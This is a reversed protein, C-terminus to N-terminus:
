ILSEYLSLYKKLLIHSSFNNKVKEIANFPLDKNQGSLVWEIGHALSQPDYPEALYGNKKHDILDGNGGIHFAVVPLGCSLSELIANSFNEQLSPVVAVDACSYLIQLSIEDNFYGLYHTKFQSFPISQPKESGFIVLEAGASDIKELAAKLEHFGKRSDDLADMAGFLILKKDAPLGLLRRSVLKDVPQFKDTDILNPLNLINERRFVGSSSAEYTLWKSLGVIRYKKLKAFVNKKKRLLWKSLDQESTSGLVPCRGCHTLFGNCGGDYHCGGTFAWMDHLSWVIPKKIRGIDSISLFAKNFWHLHIIDADSNNILKIARGFPLVSPSFYYKRRKYFNVPIQDVGPRIKSILKEAKSKPGGVTYDGSIKVDVLMRSDVGSNALSKHLRYAAKAAGGELDSYSVHLVKM